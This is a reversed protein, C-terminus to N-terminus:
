ALAARTQSAPADLQQVAREKTEPSLHAYRMAMAITAHDMLEQIVKLPVGRMAIHSGYTHRLDHWGIRGQERTIEARILCRELPRRMLGDTAAPRGGPLVRLGRAPALTGKLADVVSAPLDVGRERGGKPLGEQGNTHTRRVQLKGRPLDLDSWWPPSAM